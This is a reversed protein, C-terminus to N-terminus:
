PIDWPFEWLPIEISIGWGPKGSPTRVKELLSHGRKNRGLPEGADAPRNGRHPAPEGLGQGSPEGSNDFLNGQRGSNGFFALTTLFDVSNDFFHQLLLYTKKSCSFMDEQQVLLCTKKNLLFVHRRTSSSFMDEQQVPLCTTQNFM